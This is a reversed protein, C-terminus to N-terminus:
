ELEVDSVNHQKKYKDKAMDMTQMIYDQGQDNLERFLNLLHQESSTLKQEPHCVNREMPVDFGMLWAESVNLAMGLIVLKSQSPVVKGSVYQSLDSKNMKVNFKKCYPECKRLIDAQKMDRENMLQNLRASTNKLM